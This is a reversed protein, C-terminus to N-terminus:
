FFFEPIWFFMQFAKYGLTIRFIIYEHKNNVNRKLIIRKVTFAIDYAICLCTKEIWPSFLLNKIIEKLLGRLPRKVYYVFLEIEKLFWNQIGNGTYDMHSSRLPGLPWQTVGPRPLLVTNLDGRTLESKLRPPLWRQHPPLPPRQNPLTLSREPRGRRNIPPM